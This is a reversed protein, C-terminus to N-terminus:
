PTVNAKFGLVLSQEGGTNIYIGREIKGIGSPGHAAPDFIAKVTVKEGPNVIASAKSAGGHGPMGFPGYTKDGIKLEAVTCMCSTSVEGIKIKQDSLNELVFEHNVLGGNIKVSDFDYFVEKATLVGGATESGIIATQPKDGKFWVLAGIVAIFLILSIIITKINNM